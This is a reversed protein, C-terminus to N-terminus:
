KLDFIVIRDTGIQELHCEKDDKFIVKHTPNKSTVDNGDKDRYKLKITDGIKLLTIVEKKEEM